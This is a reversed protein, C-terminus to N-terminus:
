FTEEILNLKCVGFVYIYVCLDSNLLTLMQLELIRSRTKGRNKSQSNPHVEVHIQLYFQQSLPSEMTSGITKHKMHKYHSAEWPHTKAVEEQQQFEQDLYFCTRLPPYDGSTYWISAGPDQIWDDSFLQM